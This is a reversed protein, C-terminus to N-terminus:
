KCTTQKRLETAGNWGASHQFPPKETLCPLFWTKASRWLTQMEHLRQAQKQCSTSNLSNTCIKLTEKGNVSVTSRPCYSNVIDKTLSWPDHFKLVLIGAEPVTPLTTATPSQFGFLSFHSFSGIWFFIYCLMYWDGCVYSNSLINRILAYLKKVSREYPKFFLAFSWSRM